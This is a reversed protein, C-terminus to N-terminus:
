QKRCIIGNFYKNKLTVVIKKIWQGTLLRDLIWVVYKNGLLIVLVLAIAMAIGLNKIPSFVFFQTKLLYRILFGHILFIWLTNRGLSTLFPIKINPMIQIWLLIFSIGIILLGLRIKANYGLMDYSSAGFMMMHNIEPHNHIYIWGVVAIIGVVGILLWQKKQIIEKHKSAYVGLVYYPLFTFVRSLTMYYGLSNDRGAYLSLFVSFAFIVIQYFLNETDLLPLILYYVIVVFMYWMLWIPTSYQLQRFTIPQNLMFYYEFMEYLIQFLIYVYCFDFVIREKNYKAFYGTIFILTPIHFLYITRYIEYTVDNFQLELMHGLVVLFVMLLRLNDFRYDRKKEM